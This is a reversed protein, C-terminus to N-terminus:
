SIEDKIKPIMSAVNMVGFVIYDGYKFPAKMCDTLVKGFLSRNKMEESVSDDVASSTAPPNDMKGELKVYIFEGSAYTPKIENGKFMKIEDVWQVIIEDGATIKYEDSLIPLRINLQKRYEGETIFQAYAVNVLRYIKAGLKLPKEGPGELRTKEFKFLTSVLPFKEIDDFKHLYSLVKSAYLSYTSFESRTGKMPKLLVDGDEGLLKSGSDESSTAVETASFGAAAM